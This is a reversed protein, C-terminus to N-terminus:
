CAVTKFYSGWCQYASYVFVYYSPPIETSDRGMEGDCIEKM